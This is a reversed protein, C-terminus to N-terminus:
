DFQPVYDPIHDSLMANAVGRWYVGPKNNNRAKLVDELRRVAYFSPRRRHKEMEWADVALQQETRFEM